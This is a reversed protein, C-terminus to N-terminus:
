SHTTSQIRARLQPTASALRVEVTASNFSILPPSALDDRRRVCNFVSQQNGGRAIVRLTRLVSVTQSTMRIGIIGHPGPLKGGEAVTFLRDISLASTRDCGPAAATLSFSTRHRKDASQSRVPM